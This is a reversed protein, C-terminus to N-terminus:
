YRVFRVPIYFRLRPFKPCMGCMCTTVSSFGSQFANTGLNNYPQLMDSQQTLDTVVDHTQQTLSTPVNTFSSVVPQAVTHPVIPSTVPPPQQQQPVNSAMSPTVAAAVTSTAIQHSSVIPLPQSSPQATPIIATKKPAATALSSPRSPQAPMSSHSAIIPAPLTAATSSATVMSTGIGQSLSAQSTNSVNVGALVTKIPNKM